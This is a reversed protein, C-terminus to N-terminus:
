RTTTATGMYDPVHDLKVPTVSITFPLSELMM